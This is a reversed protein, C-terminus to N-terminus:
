AAPIRSQSDNLRALWWSAITAVVSGALLVAFLLRPSATAIAPTAVALAAAALRACALTAGQVSARALTPILHQTWIKYAVEGQVSAGVVFTVVLVVFTPRSPWVTVATWGALSILSGAMMWRHRSPSDAIWLFAASLMLAVPIGLLILASAGKTTGGMVEVWLYPKFQGLTNAGLNWATYYVGLVLPITWPTRVRAANDADGHVSPSVEITPMERNTDNLRKATTWERSERMSFRLGLVIVAVVFLHVYMLRGALVGLDSLLVGLIGAVAIGAVWLVQTLAVLTGKLQAPAEESILALSVPLDAGIALGSLALGVALTATSTAAALAAVGVTYVFLSGVLVRRRGLRDGLRGGAFAGIAFALTQLGLLAGITTGDLSLGRTYFGGITLGSVVLAGSDLYSAMGAVVALRRTRTDLGRLPRM